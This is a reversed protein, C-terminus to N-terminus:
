VCSYCICSSSEPLDVKCAIYRGSSLQYRSVTIIRMKRIRASFNYFKGDNSVRSVDCLQFFGSRMEKDYVALKL